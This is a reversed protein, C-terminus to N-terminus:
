GSKSKIAQPNFGKIILWLALVVENSIMPLYLIMSPTILHTIELVNVIILLISAIFGWVSLWQPIIKSIYLLYYFILAAIAFIFGHLLWIQDYINTFYVSTSLLLIGTIIMCVGEVTRGSIYGLSVLKNYPKLLPYMIIAIIIVAIGSLAEALMAVINSEIVASFLVAYAFLILAGVIIANRRIKEMNREGLVKSLIVM